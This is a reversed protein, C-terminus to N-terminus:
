SVEVLLGKLYEGEPFALAVPHDAAGQLRQVIRADRGADLAAGAVIKQFLELGVGGSCSYTMLLGGPSLLRFGHLNIDKYARAAREAHSASPAFKPPDLVILDFREGAARLRRLEDFVNACRWDARAADLQPNLALNTRAQAL